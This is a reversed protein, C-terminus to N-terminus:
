SWWTQFRTGYKGQTLVGKEKWNRLCLVLFGSQGRCMVFLEYIVCICIYMAVNEAAIQRSSKWTSPAGSKNIILYLSTASCYVTIQNHTGPAVKDSSGDDVYGDCNKNISYNTLHM